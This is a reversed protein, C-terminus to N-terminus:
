QSMESRIAALRREMETEVRDALEAEPDDAFDVWKDFFGSKGLYFVAEYVPVREEFGDPLSGARARYGEHLAAVFRDVNEPGGAEINQARARHLERAPDGVHAIEWDLFGVGGEGTFCNPRAPDGHLLVAPAEDLLDRNREVAAIVEDFHHDFRDASARARTNEITDVLVDTWAGPDLDLGGSGGGVVHGHTEFRRSHLTALATGVQRALATRKEVGTDSWAGLLNEGDVPATVLYPVKGVTRTALVAPVGVEQNEDVYDIVARERAIRSGDGDTAIKLFVREGDVFDVAVTRNLDNWSPGTQQVAEVERGPFADGLASALREDGDVGPHDGSSQTEDM